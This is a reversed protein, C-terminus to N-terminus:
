RNKRISGSIAGYRGSEYQGNAWTTDGQDTNKVLFEAPMELTAPRLDADVNYTKIGFYFSRWPTSISILISPVRIKSDLIFLYKAKWPNWIAYHFDYVDNNDVTLGRKKLILQKNIRHGFVSYWQDEPISSIPKNFEKRNLMKWFYYMPRLWRCLYIDIKIGWGTKQDPNNIPNRDSFIGSVYNGVYKFLTNNENKHFIFSFGSPTNTKNM